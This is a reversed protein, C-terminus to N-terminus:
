PTLQHRRREGVLGDVTASDGVRIPQGLVGTGCAGVGDACEGRGGFDEAEVLHPIRNASGVYGGCHGGLQQEFRTAHEISYGPPQQGIPRLRQRDPGLDTAIGPLNASQLRPDRRPDGTM